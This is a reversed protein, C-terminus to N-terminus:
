NTEYYPLFGLEEEIFNDIATWSGGLDERDDPMGPVEDYARWLIVEDAEEGDKGTTVKHFAFMPVNFDGYVYETELWYREPAESM